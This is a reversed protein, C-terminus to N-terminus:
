SSLPSAATRLAWQDYVFYATTANTSTDGYQLRVSTIQPYLTSNKQTLNVFCGALRTELSDVYQVYSSAM